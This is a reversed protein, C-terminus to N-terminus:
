FTQQVIRSANIVINQDRRAKEPGDYPQVYQDIMDTFAKRTAAISKGRYWNKAFLAQAAFPGIIEDKQQEAIHVRYPSVQGTKDVYTKVNELNTIFRIFDWAEDPHKTKKIVTQVWYNAINEPRSANLQPAPLVELNMQPARARIRDKDYAFGFYFASEGRVFADLADGQKNNWTYVEKTPQAFDTYFRLAQLTPHNESRNIGDAFTVQSGSTLVVNNQLMLMSLIDFANPINKSTGLAVASQLINGEDDFKTVQKVADFFDTWTQPAVPIGAQDLLDKNYYLSLTDVALPLGYLRGDIIVDEGVATVLNNQVGRPTPMTNTEITVVPEKAYKGKITINAVTVSAPMPMLRSGYQRLATNQISVIDPAVDDALANVLRSDFENHRVRQINVTVYPRIEKYAKAFERLQDVNDFVTWYTITVPKIAARDAESLGKCGFGAVLVILCLLSLRLLHKM